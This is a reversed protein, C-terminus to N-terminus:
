RDVDTRVSAVPFLQVRGGRLAIADVDGLVRRAHHAAKRLNAAGADPDLHPWLSEIVQDRLLAHGPALALLQVLEMPRRRGWDAETVPRGDVCVEFRGLLHIDVREAM